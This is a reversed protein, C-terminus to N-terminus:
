QRVEEVQGELVVKSNQFDIEKVKGEVERQEGFLNILRLKDGEIKLWTVDELVPSAEDKGFYAKALCM